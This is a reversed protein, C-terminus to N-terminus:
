YPLLRFLPVRWVARVACAAETTFLGFCCLM